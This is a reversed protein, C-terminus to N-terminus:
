PRKKKRDYAKRVRDIERRRTCPKCRAPTRDSIPLQVGCDDCKTAKHYAARSMLVGTTYRAVEAANVM